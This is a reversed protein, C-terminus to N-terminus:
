AGYFSSNVNEMICTFQKEKKPRMFARMGLIEGFGSRENIVYIPFGLWASVLNIKTM